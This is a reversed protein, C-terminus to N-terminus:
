SPRTAAFLTRRFAYFVPAPPVHERLLESYRALFRDALNAPLRELYPVLATGKVWDVLDDPGGLDHGYVKEFVLIGTAGADHLITAYDDIPLVPSVRRWGELASAFPEEAAVDLILRHTLHNHNSPVQVALQGGPAVLAFVRPILAAHDDVWHLAAHSFVIDWQGAIDEIRRHEFRVGHRVYRAAGELMEPSADIGLVVSDPLREALTATHEGTGCGLDIVTMRPRVDILAFLDEFPAARQAQFKHYQDPDWPM